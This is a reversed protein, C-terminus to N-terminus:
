FLTKGTMEGPIPLGMISLITPAIDCLRGDKLNSGQEGGIYILPVPNTTHATHVQNSEPDLMQEVNGHDATILCHGGVNLTANVVEALCQDLTEVAKVAADFSGTHGVMDGNAYNCVILDNKGSLIEAVLDSTLEFASMEPQLDYSAVLPSQILIRRERDFPEERGGNFFFTVHAYKETEAIRLQTKGLGALYEGLSNAISEPPFACPGDLDDSYRTLTLLQDKSIVRPRAFAEFAPSILAECLQRARDPRFNMFIIADNEGVPEAEGIRTAQVFEDSEGREYAAHLAEEASVACHEAVGQTILRYASEVRSWRKDRDLAFYRGIVTAIRGSGHEALQTELLSISQAASKPPTDRGDLFAHVFVREIGSDALVKCSAIIQDIHSHVGGPSLLGMVHVAGGKAKTTSVIDTLAPNTAFTGDEIAKNIRTFNQYVVRGAGLNMHGVESNGMQGEPLGVALGSTAILSHPYDRILGDLVPTHAAAFANAESEARVGIGDLIILTCTTM